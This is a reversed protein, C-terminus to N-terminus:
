ADPDMIREFARREMEDTEATRRIRPGRRAPPTPVRPAPGMIAGPTRMRAALQDVDREILKLQEMCVDYM